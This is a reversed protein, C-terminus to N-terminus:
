VSRPSTEWYNGENYKDSHRHNISSSHSFLFYSVRFNRGSLSKRGLFSNHSDWFSRLVAFNVMSMIILPFILCLSVLLWNQKMRKSKSLDSGNYRVRLYENRLLIDEDPLYSDFPCISSTRFTSLPITSRFSENIAKWM